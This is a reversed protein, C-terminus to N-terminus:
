NMLLLWALSALALFAAAPLLIVPGTSRLEDVLPLLYVGLAVWPVLPDDPAHTLLLVFAPYKAPVLAVRLSRLAPRKGTVRYMVIFIVVLGLYPLIRRADIFLFLLGALGAVLLWLAVRFPRLDQARGLCRGPHHERDHDVDELDDWIRFTIVFLAAMIGSVPLQSLPDAATLLVGSLVLLWVLVIRLRLIREGLYCAAETAFM